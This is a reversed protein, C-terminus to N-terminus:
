LNIATIKVAGGPGASFWVQGNGVSVGQWNAFLTAYDQRAIAQRLEPTVITDYAAIFHAADNIKLSKGGVHAHLPFAVMAAVAQKNGEGVATKLTELFARYPEHSGFLTDLTTDTEAATQANGARTDILLALALATAAVLM